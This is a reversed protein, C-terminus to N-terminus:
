VDGSWGELVKVVDNNFDIRGKATLAYKTPTEDNFEQTVKFCSTDDLHNLPPFEYYAIEEGVVEENLWLRLKTLISGEVIFIHPVLFPRFIESITTSNSTKIESYLFKYEYGIFYKDPRRYIKLDLETSSSTNVVLRLSGNFKFLPFYRSHFFPVLSLSNETDVFDPLDTFSSSIKSVVDVVVHIPGCSIEVSSVDNMDSLTSQFTDIVGFNEILFVHRSSPDSKYTTVNFNAYKLTM